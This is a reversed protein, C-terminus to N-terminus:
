FSFFIYTPWLSMSIWSAPLSEPVLGYNRGDGLGKCNEGESVRACIFCWISKPLYITMWFAVHTYKTVQSYSGCSKTHYSIYEMTEFFIIIQIGSSLQSPWLKLLCLFTNCTVNSIWSQSWYIKPIHSLTIFLPSCYLSQSVDHSM